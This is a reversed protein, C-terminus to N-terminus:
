SILLNQREMRHFIATDEGTTSLVTGVYACRQLTHRGIVVQCGLEEVLLYRDRWAPMSPGWAALLRHCNWTELADQIRVLTALHDYLPKLRPVDSEQVKTSYWTGRLYGEYEGDLQLEVIMEYPTPLGLDFFSLPCWSWPGSQSITVEGHLLSSQTIFELRKLIAKTNDAQDLAYQGHEIRVAVSASKQNRRTDMGMDAMLGAILLRDQSWCTYRNNLISLIHSIPRGTGMWFSRKRVRRIVASVEMWAPHAFPDWESALLDDDLDKIVPSGHEDAFLIKVSESAYTCSWRQGAAPSGPRCLLLWAPAGTARGSLASSNRTTYSHM